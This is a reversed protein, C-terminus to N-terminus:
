ANDKASRLRAFAEVRSTDAFAAPPEAFRTLAPNLFPNINLEIALSSPLTPQNAERLQRCTEAYKVLKDNDPWADAGFALNARTYEHGCCVLTPGPLAALVDLSNLMQEPTGEFLRGCGASFLTDGCFLLPRWNAEDGSAPSAVCAVTEQKNLRGTQSVTLPPEAFFAVHDLTHGPVAIMRFVLGAASLHNGPEVPRNIQPIRDPRASAKNGYVPCDGEGNWNDSVLQHIGATHDPHHHTILIGALQLGTKRLFATVPAAQGPDVVWTEPSDARRFCWVYNDNLVPVAKLEILVPNTPKTLIDM